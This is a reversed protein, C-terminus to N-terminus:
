AQTDERTRRVIYFQALGASFEFMCALARFMESVSRVTQEGAGLYPGMEVVGDYLLWSILSATLLWWPWGFLGGRLALATFLVPAILILSIMDGLSMAIGTLASADGGALEIFNNVVGPGGLATALLIAILIGAWRQGKTGPLELGAVRWAQALMYIGIVVSINALVVLIGQILDISGTSSEIAPLMTLDRLLLFFMCGGMFLWARQLYEGRSFSFAAALCGVLALGKVLEIETRLFVRYGASDQVFFDLVIFVVAWALPIAVLYRFKV